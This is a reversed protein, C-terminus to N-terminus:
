RSGEYIEPPGSQPSVAKAFRAAALCELDARSCMSVADVHDRPWAALLAALDQYARAVLGDDEPPLDIPPVDPGQFLLLRDVHLSIVEADAKSFGSADVESSWGSVFNNFRFAADRLADVDIM